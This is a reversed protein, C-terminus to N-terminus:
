SKVRKTKAPIAWVFLLIALQVVGAYWFYTEEWREYALKHKLMITAAIIFLFVIISLGIWKRKMWRLPGFEHAIYIPMAIRILAGSLWQYVAFFDVHEIYDGVKVIRWQTYAPYRMISAEVPGFITIAGVTPGITLVALVFTLLVLHWSKFKKSMHHQIMLLYTIELFSSLSQLAGKLVPAAGNELLPLLYSYEKAPMNASMVFDGLVVVIPLLICSLFAITRLGSAAAVLCLICFLCATVVPPTRPLYTSSTWSVVDVLTAFAIMLQICIFTFIVLWAVIRPMRDNLWRDIRKGNLKVLTRHLPFAVIPLMIIFGVPVSLWADRKATDLLLPIITVHNVLGVSLLTMMVVPWLGFRKRSVLDM